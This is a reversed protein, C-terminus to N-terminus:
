VSRWHVDSSSELHQKKEAGFQTSEAVVREPGPRPLEATRGGRTGEARGRILLYATQETGCCRRLHPRSHEEDKTVARSDRQKGKM